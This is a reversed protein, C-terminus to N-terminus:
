ADPIERIRRIEAEPFGFAVLRAVSQLVDVRLKDPRGRASVRLVLEFTCDQEQDMFGAPDPQPDPM